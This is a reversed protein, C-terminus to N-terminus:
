SICIISIIHQKHTQEYINERIVVYYKRHILYLAVQRWINRAYGEYCIQSPSVIKAKRKFILCNLSSQFRAALMHHVQIGIWFM